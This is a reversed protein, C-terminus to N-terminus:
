RGYNRQCDQRMQPNTIENCFAPNRSATNFYCSDRQNVGTIKTCLSSDGLRGAANALCNDRQDASRINECAEAGLKNAAESYCRDRADAPAKACLDSEGLKVALMGYCGGKVDAIKVKDCIAPDSKESAFVVRCIDQAIYPSPGFGGSSESAGTYLPLIDCIEKSPESGVLIPGRRAFYFGGGISALFMIVLIVIVIDKNM